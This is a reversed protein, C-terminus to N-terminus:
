PHSKSTSSEMSCTAFPMAQDELSSFVHSDGVPLIELCGLNGM